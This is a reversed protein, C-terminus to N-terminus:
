IYPPVDACRKYMDTGSGTAKQTKAKKEYNQYLYRFNGIIRFDWCSYLVPPLDENKV